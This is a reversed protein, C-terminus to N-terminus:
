LVCSLFVQFFQVFASNGCPGNQNLTFSFLIFFLVRFFFIIIFFFVLEFPKKISHACYVHAWIHVPCIWMLIRPSSFFKRSFLTFEVKAAIFYFSQIACRPKHATCISQPPQLWFYVSEQLKYKWTAAISLLLLYFLFVGGFYYKTQRHWFVNTQQSPFTHVPHNPMSIQRKYAMTLPWESIFFALKRRKGARGYISCPRIWETQIENALTVSGMWTLEDAICLTYWETHFQSENRM